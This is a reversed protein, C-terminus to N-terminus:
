RIIKRISELGSPLLKMSSVRFSGVGPRYYVATPYSAGNRMDLVVTHPMAKNRIAWSMKRSLASARMTIKDNSNNIMTKVEIAHNGDPTLVDFPMDNATRVGGIAQRVLSEGFDAKQHVLRDAPKYNLLAARHKANTVPKDALSSFGKHRGSGPGGAEIRIKSRTRNRSGLVRISRAAVKRSESTETLVPKVGDNNYEKYDDAIEKAAEYAQKPRDGYAQVVPLPVYRGGAAFRAHAREMSTATSVDSHVVMVKYGVQKLAQITSVTRQRNDTIDFVVNAGRSIAHPVLYNKAIDAGREHYSPALSPKFGALKEMVADPDIHIHNKLGLSQLITSKGSGPKGLMFVAHKEGTEAKKDYLSKAITLNEKDAAETYRNDSDLVGPRTRVDGIQSNEQAAQQVKPDSAHTLLINKIREDQAHSIHGEETTWGSGPGGAQLVASAINM